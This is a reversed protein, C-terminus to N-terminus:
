PAGVPRRFWALDAATLTEANRRVDHRTRTLMVDAQLRLATHRARFQDILLIVAHSM